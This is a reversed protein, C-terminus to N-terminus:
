YDSFNLYHMVELQDLFQDDSKVLDAISNRPIESSGFAPHEKTMIPLLINCSLGSTEQDPNEIGFPFLDLSAPNHPIVQVDSSSLVCSSPSPYWVLPHYPAYTYSSMHSHM